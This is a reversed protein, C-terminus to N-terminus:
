FNPGQSETEGILYIMLGASVIDLIALTVAIIGVLPFLALLPFAGLLSFAGFIIKLWSFFSVIGRIFEVRFVLGLGIVLYVIGAIVMITFDLSPDMGFLHDSKPPHALGAAGKFVDYLGGLAWYAAILYYVAWVWRPAAYGYAQKQKPAQVPRAVRAVDAGCFQCKQAWDPLTSQCSPCSIM